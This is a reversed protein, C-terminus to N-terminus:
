CKICYVHDYDNAIENYNEPWLLIKLIGAHIDVSEENMRVLWISM